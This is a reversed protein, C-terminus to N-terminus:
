HITISAPPAPSAVVGSTLAASVPNAKASELGGAVATVSYWYVGNATVTDTTTLGTLGSKISTLVTASTGRYLNYTVPNTLPKGGVDQTVATWAINATTPPVTVPPPATVAALTALLGWKWTSGGDISYKVYWTLPSAKAITTCKLTAQGNPGADGTSVTSWVVSLTTNTPVSAYSNYTGSPCSELKVSPPTTTAAQLATAFLTLALLSLLKM